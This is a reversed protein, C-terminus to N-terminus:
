KQCRTISFLWMSRLLRLGESGSAATLTGYGSNQLVDAFVALVDKKDDICLVCPMSRAPPNADHSEASRLPGGRKGKIYIFHAQRFV